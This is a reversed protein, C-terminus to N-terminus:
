ALPLRPRRRDMVLVAGAVAAGAALLLLAIHGTEGLAPPIVSGINCDM